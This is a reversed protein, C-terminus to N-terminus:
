GRTGPGQKRAPADPGSDIYWAMSSVEGPSPEPEGAAEAFARLAALLESRRSAPMAAVVRALEARRRSTVRRVLRRGVPSLGLLVERRSGPNDRRTVLGAVLLRDIMRLATSANVGLREALGSLNVEGQSELVVLTRFQTVTVSSEVEALSRASVGVLVRSATLLATVFAEAEEDTSGGSQRIVPRPGHESQM